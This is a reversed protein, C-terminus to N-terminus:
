RGHHRKGGLLRELLSSAKEGLGSETLLGRTITAVFAPEHQLGDRAFCECLTVDTM